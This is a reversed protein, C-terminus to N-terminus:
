RKKNRPASGQSNEWEPDNPDEVEEAEHGPSETTDSFLTVPPTSSRSVAIATPTGPESSRMERKNSVNSEEEPDDATMEILMEDYVCDSLPFQRAEYPAM